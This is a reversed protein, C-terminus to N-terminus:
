STQVNNVESSLGEPTKAQLAKIQNMTEQISYALKELRKVKSRTQSTTLDQTQNTM